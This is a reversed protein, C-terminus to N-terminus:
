KALAIRLGLGVSFFLLCVIGRQRIHAIHTIGDEISSPRNHSQHGQRLPLFPQQTM